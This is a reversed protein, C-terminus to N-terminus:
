EFNSNPRLTGNSPGSVHSSTWASLGPAYLHPATYPIRISTAPIM